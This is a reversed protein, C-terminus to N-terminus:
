APLGDIFTRLAANFAVAREFYVSHGADAVHIVRASRLLPAIADAAFPPIVKDEDGSLFLVPCEIAALSQPSRTRMTWMRARLATKDLTGAMADIARYLHGLAPQEAVMRAGVAPHIGKPAWDAISIQAAHKWEDLRTRTADDTQAPDVSGTTSALVLGRLRGPERLALEIAGWGGMSQAVLVPRSLKLEDMLAGIDDAYDGPDPGGTIPSSPAFGRCAFAVCAHRQAFAPVQQWWSLHNGGLGHAFVIPPGDGTVEYHIKAGDPRLLTGTRHPPSAPLTTM